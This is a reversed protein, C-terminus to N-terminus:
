EGGGVLSTVPVLLGGGTGVLVGEEEVGLSIARVPELHGRDILLADVVRRGRVLTRDVLLHEDVSEFWGQPNDRGFAPALLDEDAPLDLFVVRVPIRELQFILGRVRRRLRPHRDRDGRSFGPLRTETR